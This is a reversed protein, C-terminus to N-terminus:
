NEPPVTVIRFGTGIQRMTPPNGGRSASRCDRRAGGWFGGRLVRNVPTRQEDPAEDFVAQTSLESHEGGRLGSALVSLLAYNMTKEEIGRLQYSASCLRSIHWDWPNMQDAVGRLLDAMQATDRTPRTADRSRHRRKFFDSLGM